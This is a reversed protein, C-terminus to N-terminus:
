LPSLTPTPLEVCTGNDLTRGNPCICVPGSPSLLCLWECKKRDCPNNVDPQKYKHHLVLDTAHNMGNALNEIPGKGFKNVRFVSNNMYTVGYIHDEFLDISFPHHLEAPFCLHLVSLLHTKALLFRALHVADRFAVCSNKLTNAAVVVDSGDLRVSCILSLKADAWYLRENFYDVALCLHSHVMVVELNVVRSDTQRRNRNSNQSSSSSPLDYCSIRGTHWNTWYLRNTKVHLDMADIRVNADGQFILEYRWNPVSPDLSRIENDDGLYLVHGQAKKDCSMEDSGYDECDNFHNCLLNTSICRGNSCQFQNKQCLPTLPHTPCNLEDSNDGCNNVGDCRKSVPVCVRDNHCRFQRTPPCLFCGAFLNVFLTTASSNRRPATDVWQFLHYTVNCM